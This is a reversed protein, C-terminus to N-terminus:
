TRHVGALINSTTLPFLCKVGSLMPPFDPLAACVSKISSTGVWRLHLLDEVKLDDM